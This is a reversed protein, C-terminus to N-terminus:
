KNVIKNARVARSRNPKNLRFTSFDAGRMFLFNRFTLELLIALFRFLHTFIGETDEIHGQKYSLSSLHVTLM